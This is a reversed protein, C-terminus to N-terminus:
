AQPYLFRKSSLHETIEPNLDINKFTEGTQVIYECLICNQAYSNGIPTTPLFHVRVVTWHACTMEQLSVQKLKMEMSLQIQYTTKSVCAPRNKKKPLIPKHNDMCPTKCSLVRHHCDISLKDTFQNITWMFHACSKYTQMCLRMLSKAQAELGWYTSTQHKSKCNWKSANSNIVIRLEKHVFFMSYVGHM